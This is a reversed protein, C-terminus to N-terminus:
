TFDQLLFYHHTHPLGGSSCVRELIHITITLKHFNKKNTHFHKHELRTETLNNSNFIALSDQQFMDEISYIDWSLVLLKEADKKM